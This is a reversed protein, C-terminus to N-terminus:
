KEKKCLELYRAIVKDAFLRTETPIPRGAAVATPGFNYAWLATRVDGFQLLMRRLYRAGGTLNDNVSYPNVGLEKATGPMLQCLGYAGKQSKADHDLGSECEVLARFLRPHLGERTAITTMLPVLGEDADAVHGKGIGWLMEIATFLDSVSSEGNATFPAMIATAVIIAALLHPTRIAM